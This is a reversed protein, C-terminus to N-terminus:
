ARMVKLSTASSSPLSSLLRRAPAAHVLRAPMADGVKREAPKRFLIIAAAALFILALCLLLIKRGMRRSKAPRRAM